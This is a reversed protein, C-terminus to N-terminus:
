AEPGLETRAKAAAVSPVGRRCLMVLKKQIEAAARVGDDFAPNMAMGPWQKWAPPVAGPVYGVWEREADTRVDVMVAEGHSMWQPAQEPTVDGAYGKNEVPETM